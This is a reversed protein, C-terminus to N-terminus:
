SICGQSQQEFGQEEKAILQDNKVLFEQGTEPCRFGTKTSELKHGAPGVLGLQRAPVGLVLAYDPLEAVVASAAAVM